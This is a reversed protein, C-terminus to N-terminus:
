GNVLCRRRRRGAGGDDEDDGEGGGGGAVPHADPRPHRRGGDVDGGDDDDPIIQASDIIEPNGQYFQLNQANHYLTNGAIRQDSESALQLILESPDSLTHLSRDSRM